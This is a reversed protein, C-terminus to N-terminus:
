IQDRLDEGIAETFMFMNSCIVALDSMFSEHEVTLKSQAHNYGILDVLADQLPLPINNWLKPTMKILRHEIVNRKKTWDRM